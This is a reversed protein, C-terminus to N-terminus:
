RATGCREVGFDAVASFRAAAHEVRSIGSRSRRTEKGPPAPPRDKLHL